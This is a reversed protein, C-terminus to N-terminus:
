TLLYFGTTLPMLLEKKPRAKGQGSMSITRRINNQRNFTSNVLLTFSANVLYIVLFTVCYLYVNFSRFCVSFQSNYVHGLGFDCKYEGNLCHYQLLLATILKWYEIAIM